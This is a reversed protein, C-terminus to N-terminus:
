TYRGARFRSIGTNAPSISTKGCKAGERLLCIQRTANANGAVIRPRIMEGRRRDMRRDRSQAARLMRRRALRDVRSDGCRLVNWRMCDDLTMANRTTIMNAQMTMRGTSAIKPVDHSSKPLEGVVCARCGKRADARVVASGVFENVPLLDGAADIDFGEFTRIPGEAPVARSEFPGEDAGGKLAVTGSGCVRSAAAMVGLAVDPGARFPVRPM